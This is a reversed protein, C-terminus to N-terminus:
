SVWLRCNEVSTAYAYLKRSVGSTPCTHYIAFLAAYNTINPIEFQAEGSDHFAPYQICEIDRLKITSENEFSTFKKNVIDLSSDTLQLFKAKWQGKATRITLFDQLQISKE